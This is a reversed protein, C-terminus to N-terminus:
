YVDAFLRLKEYCPSSPNEELIAVLDRKMASYKDRAEVESAAFATHLFCGYIGCTISWPATQGGRELTIRAGREHEEDWVIVGGESGQTGLSQGQGFAHWM